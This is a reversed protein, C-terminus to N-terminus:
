QHDEVDAEFEAQPDETTAIPYAGFYTGRAICLYEVGNHHIAIDTDPVEQDLLTFFGEHVVTVDTRLRDNLWFIFDEM